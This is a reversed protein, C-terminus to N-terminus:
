NDSSIECRATALSTGVKLYRNKASGPYVDFITQLHKFIPVRTSEPLASFEFAQEDIIEAVRFEEDITRYELRSAGHNFTSIILLETIAHEAGFSGSSLTRSPDLVYASEM